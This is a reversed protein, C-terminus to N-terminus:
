EYVFVGKNNILGVLKFTDNIDKYLYIGAELNYQTDVQVEEGLLSIFIGDTVVATLWVRDFEENLYKVSWLKGKAYQYKVMNVNKLVEKVLDKNM